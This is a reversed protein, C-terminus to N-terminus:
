RKVSEILTVARRTNNFAIEELVERLKELKVGSLQHATGTHNYELEIPQGDVMLRIKTTVFLDMKMLSRM